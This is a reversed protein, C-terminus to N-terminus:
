NNGLVFKFVTGVHFFQLNGTEAEIYETDTTAEIRAVYGSAITPRQHTLLDNVRDMIQRGLKGGDEGTTVSKLFIWHTVLSNGEGLTYKHVGSQREILIYPCPQDEPAALAFVDVGWGQLTTDGELKTVLYSYIDRITASM